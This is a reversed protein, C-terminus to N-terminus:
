TVSLIFFIGIYLKHYDVILPEKGRSKPADSKLVDNYLAEENENNGCIVLMSPHQQLRNM